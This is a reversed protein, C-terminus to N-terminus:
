GSDSQKGGTDLQTSGSHGQQCSTTRSSNLVTIVCISGLAAPAPNPVGTMLMTMSPLPECEDM